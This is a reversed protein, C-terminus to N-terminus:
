VLRARLRHRYACGCREAGGRKAHSSPAQSEADCSRASLRAWLEHYVEPMSHAQLLESDPAEGVDCDMQVPQQESGEPGVLPLTGDWLPETEASAGVGAQAVVRALRGSWSSSCSTEGSRSRTPRREQRLQRLIQACGIPRYLRQSVARRRRSSRRHWRCRFVARACWDRSSRQHARRPTRSQWKPCAGQRQRWRRRIWRNVVSSQDTM